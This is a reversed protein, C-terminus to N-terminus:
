EDRSKLKELAKKLAAIEYNLNMIEENHKSIKIYAYLSLAYLLAIMIVFVTNVPMQIDLLRSLFTLLQPFLSILILCIGWVIWIVAYRVNIKNKKVAFLIAILACVSACLLSIQLTPSM